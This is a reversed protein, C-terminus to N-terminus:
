IPTSRAGTSKRSSSPTGLNGFVAEALETDFGILKGDNDFYNMPEYITYGVVVTKAAPAEAPADASPAPAAPATGCAALCSVLMLIALVMTMMKKM